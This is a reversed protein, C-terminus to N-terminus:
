MDVRLTQVPDVRTARRAPVWATGVAVVGMAVSLLVLSAADVPQIGPLRSVLVRSLTAAAAAGIAVGGIAYGVAGRVIQWRVLQPTAGLAMRIGFERTRLQLLYSMVGYLGVAALMCALVGFAMMMAMAFRRDSVYTARVEEFTRINYLPLDPDLAAVAARLPAALSRPDSLAKVIVYTTGYTPRQALPVYYHPHIVSEPGRLRVDRAVGVITGWDRTRGFGLKMRRGVITRADLGVARALSESGIVIPQAGNDDAPTFARGAVLDIGIAAFYGPSVALQSGFRNDGSPTPLGEVEISGGIGVERSGPMLSTMGAAEVGPLQRLREALRDHFQVITANSGYKAVPLTTEMTLVRDGRAGLDTKMLKSVTGVIAAAGALLVLAIAIELIVLASRFRRWFPRSTTSSAGRLSDAMAEGHISLAPATGFLVTALICLLATVAIVRGNIAVDSAGHLTPPILVRIASLTWWAAPIALAGAVVSLVASECFLLRVLRFRSAGLARRVSMERERASVRALLLNATNICAVLLVLLVAASVVLILPRVSGVLEDRLPIVRVPREGPDRKGGSRAENMREIEARAQEASVGGALRVLVAPAFAQGTIQSDSGAPIWVDSQAPFDFRPPMVGLVTFPRGNLLLTSKEIAGSANLRRRWFAHSVVAVEPTATVDDDTFARGITPQAGLAAFFGASVAAARVREPATHGGVNLAGNAYLGVGAFAPSERVVKAVSMGKTSFGFPAGDIRVIRSPEPYPLPRLLVADAVSFLATNAGIGLALTVVAVTTFGPNRRLTRVARHLDTIM